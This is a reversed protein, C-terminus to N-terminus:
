HSKAGPAPGFCANATNPVGVLTGRSIRQNTMERATEAHPSEKIAWSFGRPEQRLQEADPEGCVIVNRFQLPFRIM